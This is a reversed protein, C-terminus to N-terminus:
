MCPGSGKKEGKERIDVMCIAKLTIHWIAAQDRSVSMRFVSLFRMPLQISDM